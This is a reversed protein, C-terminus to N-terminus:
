NKKYCRFYIRWNAKCFKLIGQYNKGDKALLSIEMIRKAQIADTKAVKM